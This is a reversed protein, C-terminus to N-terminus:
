SPFLSSSTCLLLSFFRVNAGFLVHFCVWVRNAIMGPRGRIDLSHSLLDSSVFHSRIKKTHEIKSCRVTKLRSICRNPPWHSSHIRNLREVWWRRDNGDMVFGILLVDDFRDPGRGTRLLCVKMAVSTKRYVEEAVALADLVQKRGDSDKQNHSSKFERGIMDEVVAITEAGKIQKGLNQVVCVYLVVLGCLSSGVSFVVVHCVPCCVVLCCM